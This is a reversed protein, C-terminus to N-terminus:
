GEPHQEGQEEQQRDPVRDVLAQELHVDRAEAETGAGGRRHERAEGVVALDERIGVIVLRSRGERFGIYDNHSHRPRLAGNSHQRGAFNKRQSSLGPLWFDSM